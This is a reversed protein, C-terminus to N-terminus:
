QLLFLCGDVHGSVDAKVFFYWSIFLEGANAALTTTVFDDKSRDATNLSLVPMTNNVIKKPTHFLIGHRVLPHRPPSIHADCRSVIPLPSM